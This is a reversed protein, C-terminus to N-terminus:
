IMEEITRSISALDRLQELHQEEADSVDDCHKLRSRCSQDINHLMSWLHMAHMACAAHMQEESDDFELTIKM